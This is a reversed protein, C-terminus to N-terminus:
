EEVKEVKWNGGLRKAVRTSEAKTKFRTADRKCLTFKSYWCSDDYYVIVDGGLADKYPRLNSVVYM